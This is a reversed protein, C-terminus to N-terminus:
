LEIKESNITKENHDKLANKKKQEKTYADNLDDESDFLLGDMMRNSDDFQGDKAGWLFVALVAFSVILSVILM